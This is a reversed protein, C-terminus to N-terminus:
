GVAVRLREGGPATHDAVLRLPEPLGVPARDAGPVLELVLHLGLVRALHQLTDVSPNHEALELRAVASPKMGLKTALARQSLGQAVRYDLVADAVARALALREWRARREPDADAEAFFEETSWSERKSL